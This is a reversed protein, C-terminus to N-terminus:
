LSTQNHTYWNLATQLADEQNQIRRFANEQCLHKMLEGLVPGSPLGLFQILTSGDVPMFPHFLPDKPDRWRDLWTAQHNSSLGIILAPLIEELDQHLQLLETENLGKFDSGDNLKQWFRLKNCRSQIKRSFRLKYLGEKSILNALRVLPLAVKKENDTLLKAQKPLSPKSAYIETRSQWPKLLNLEQIIPTIADAFDSKVLKIVEAQIREPSSKKLLKNNEQIWIKTTSDMSLGLEAMLRPGRLLRLPDELLNKQSIAVLEKNKLDQLGGTPDILCPNEELTLAIANIRFDRKLLDEEINQGDLAAIDFNWRGIVLRAIDRATDLVVCTGGLKKAQKKTFIIAAKPIILDIDPTEILNQLFADRVAGGVIASGSPLDQIKLPWENPSIRKWLIEALINHNCHSNSQKVQPNSIHMQM